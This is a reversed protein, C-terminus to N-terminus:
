KGTRMGTEVQYLKRQLTQLFSKGKMTILRTTRESRRIEIRDGLKLLGKRSGDFSVEAEIDASHASQGIEVSVRADAPLVISHINLGHACVPTIVIMEASPEIIPGGASLNYATSGTPTSLIVGDASVACLFEDDVYINLCLMRLAGHRAVVIDNLAYSRIEDAEGKRCELMMRDQIKYDGQLVMDLTQKYSALDIETLYGLTGLNVGLIPLPFGRLRSVADLVTGDGGLVLLVDKEPDAGAIGGIREEWSQVRCCTIGRGTLYDIVEWTVKLDPDKRLNTLIFFREIM